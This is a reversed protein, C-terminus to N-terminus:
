FVIKYIDFNGYGDDSFIAYYAENESIPMFFIDDDTTNLPYGINEPKDWRNANRKAAFIDYGGMNYHGKSSFYLTENTTIFPTAEDRPTNISPGMNDPIGWENNTNKTSMYIDKGGYGGNRDSVFYLTKGDPSISAHTENFKTNINDNFKQMIGWQGNKYMSFYLNFDDRDKRVLILMKGDASISATHIDGDAQFNPTLNQPLGWDDNKKQTFFVADYFRLSTTYAMSSDNLTVVPRTNAFSSNINRGQNISAFEIPEEKMDMANYCIQIQYHVENLQVKDENGIEKRYKQFTELAKEIDENKRYAIGLLLLARRPAKKETYYGIDYNDTIDQVAEELYRIANGEQKPMNLYCEGLRYSINANDRKANYVELYLPLAERYENFLLYYEADIFMRKYNDPKQSYSCVSSIIILFFVLIKKMTQNM